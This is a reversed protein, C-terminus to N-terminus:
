LIAYLITYGLITYYLITYYLITYYLIYANQLSTFLLGEFGAEGGGPTKKELVMFFKLYNVGLASNSEEGINIKSNNLNEQKISCTM